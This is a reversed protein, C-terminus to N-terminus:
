AKLEGARELNLALLRRLITEDDTERPDEPWGYASWVARDLKHHAQDLWTPRQNYLNTLTRKKLESESAGEPNLWRERLENLERAAEAIAEVRPDGAPESGPPWPFPFTEFTTTPTYRPRDELSTGMRLSWVEHARSHLVGFFYDDDRAIAIVVNAPLDREKLWRFIRHKSVQSTGIYRSMPAVASRLDSGSRGLRWWNERRQRDRNKDRLPKVHTRVYEFPAEYLSAEDLSMDDFDIIFYDRPRTNIEEGTVYPRIVDSNPQGNPNAPLLLMEKALDGPIDFPGVKGPGQFAIHRNEGLRRAITIDIFGTLDANIQEVPSGDLLRETESGDDFGIISIRVAAGDLIWEEDDWAVFIDGSRKIRELVDRNAGGRISNTALLGARKACGREIRQRAQEFFYCCLDAERRVHGEYVSFLRDVYEDGLELRLRKSGLFPPNGIIYDAPPWEAEKPHEPDSRDLLADQLKINDMEGLVPDRRPQFGNERMWQLYGIWVVVQTLQQAYPNIELGHLQGPRVGPFGIPLGLSSGYTLVDKELDLLKNLAVYLFNGSGCAPDLIRVSALEEQFDALLKSLEGAEPLQTPTRARSRSQTPRASLRERQREIAAEWRERIEDAQARVEDWRRRLPTMVVPDVVREIDHRGTYHAGLQSRRAPDLSREFLTGIIAPEIATWDLRSAEVLGELEERTLPVVDITRFLGGNFHDIRQYGVRGGDRMATFLEAILEPFADPEGASYELLKRFHEKPLLGVDESFLCFLIQVLFHAAREPDVGRDQLAIALKGFREAAEETVSEVTRAPRLTEPDEFLLRLIRLNQPEDITELDMQHIQKVTGTFNTHIAIRDLDSVVLLPPNELDERYQLLQQYAAELNAHHGKYEWAFHGRYWVDAFGKGGGTKTVGKEFTFFEGTPDAQAPTPVGLVACLDLFHQQYGSRESLGASKSWRAKFETIHM